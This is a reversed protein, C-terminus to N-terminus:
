GLSLRFSGVLCISGFLNLHSLLDFKINVILNLKKSVTV